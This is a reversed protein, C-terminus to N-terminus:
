ARGAAVIAAKIVDTSATLNVGKAWAEGRDRADLVQQKLAEKEADASIQERMAKSKADTNGADAKKSKAVLAKLGLAVREPETAFELAQQYREFQEFGDLARAESMAKTVKLLLEASGLCAGLFREVALKYPQERLGEHQLVAELWNCLGRTRVGVAGGKLLTRPPFPQNVLFVYVASTGVSDPRRGAAIESAVESVKEKIGRAGDVASMALAKLTGGADTKMNEVFDKAAQGAVWKPKEAEEIEAETTGEPIDFVGARQAETRAHAILERRLLFWERYRRKVSARPKEDLPVAPHRAEILYETFGDFHEHAGSVRCCDWVGNVPRAADHALPQSEAAQTAAAAKGGGTAAGAGGGASRQQLGAIQATAWAQQSPDLSAVKQYSRRADLVRGLGAYSQALKVHAKVYSPKAQVALTAADVAQQFQKLGCCSAACNTHLIHLIPDCGPLDLAETYAALAQDYQQKKFYNNGRVKLAEVAKGGKPEAAAKKAGGLESNGIKVGEEGLLALHFTVSTGAQKLAHVVGWRGGSVSKGDIHTIRAGVPVGALEAPGPTQDMEGMYGKVRGDDTIEVGFGCDSSKELKYGLGSAVPGSAAAEAAEAAAAATTGGAGAASASSPATEPAGAAPEPVDHVSAPAGSAAATPTRTAPLM